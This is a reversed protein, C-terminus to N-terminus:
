DRVLIGPRQWVHGNFEAAITPWEPTPTLVEPLTDTLLVSDEIKAGSISPNWAAVFNAELPLATGLKAQMERAEYGTLGGQHHYRWEDAFPSKAYASIGNQLAQALTNGVVSSGILAADVQATTEIRRQIEAPVPGFHILRSVSCCLGWKRGTLVLMAYRDLIKDTPLPHRYKFIREDTAILNVFAQVGRRQCEYSLLAAIHMESQGPRVTFAADRIASACLQGLQRFREAEADTLRMRLLSIDASIDAVQAGANAFAGDSGVRLGSVLDAAGKGGDHWHTLMPQWGRELMADEDILRPAEINNTVFYREGNRKIVLQVPGNATAIGVYGHAGGTAWAFSSIRQLVIADLSKSDMLANLRNLKIELESSSM